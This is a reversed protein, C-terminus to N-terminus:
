IILRIAKLLIRFPNVFRYATPQIKKGIRKRASSSKAKRATYKIDKGISPSILVEEDPSKLKVYEDFTLEITKGTFNKQNNAPNSSLLEPPKKDQPGGGPSTQNACQSFALLILAAWFYKM